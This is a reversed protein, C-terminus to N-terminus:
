VPEISSIRAPLFRKALFYTAVALLPTGIFLIPLHIALATRYNSQKEAFFTSANYFAYKAYNYPEMVVNSSATAEAAVLAAEDESLELQKDAILSEIQSKKDDYYSQNMPNSINLIYYIPTKLFANMYGKMTTNDLDRSLFLQDAQSIDRISFSYSLETGRFDYASKWCYIPDIEGTWDNYITKFVRKQQINFNSIFETCPTFSHIGDGKLFEGDQYYITHSPCYFNRNGRRNVFSGAFDKDHLTEFDFNLESLPLSETWGQFRQQLTSILIPEYTRACNVDLSTSNLTNIQNQTAKIRLRANEVDKLYADFISQAVNLRYQALDMEREAAAMENAKPAIKSVVCWPAYSGVFSLASFASVGIPICASWPIGQAFSSLLLAFPISHRIKM